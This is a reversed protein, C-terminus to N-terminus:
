EVFQVQTFCQEGEKVVRWDSNVLFEVFDTAISKTAQLDNPPLKIHAAYDAKELNGWWNDPEISEIDRHILLPMPKIHEDKIYKDMLQYIIEPDRVHYFIVLQKTSFQAEAAKIQYTLWNDLLGRPEMYDIIHKLLARTEEDKEGDWGLSRLASKPGDSRHLNIVKCDITKAFQDCFEVFTDKGVGAHGNILVLITKNM